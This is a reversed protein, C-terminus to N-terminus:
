YYVQVNATVGGALSTVLWTCGDLPSPIFPDEAWHELYRWWIIMDHGFPNDAAKAGFGYWGAHMLRDVPGAIRQIRHNPDTIVAILVGTPFIASAGLSYWNNGSVGTFTQSSM